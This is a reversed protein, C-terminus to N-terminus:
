PAFKVPVIKMRLRAREWHGCVTCDWGDCTVRKGFIDSVHPKVKSLDFSGCKPCKFGEMERLTMM